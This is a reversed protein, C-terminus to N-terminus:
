DSKAQGLASPAQRDTQSKSWLAPLSGGTAGIGSGRQAGQLTSEGRDQAGDMRYHSWCLLPTAFTPCPSL